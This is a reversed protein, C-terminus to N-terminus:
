HIQLWRFILDIDNNVYVDFLEPRHSLLLTFSEKYSKLDSLVNNITAANDLSYDTKFEPDNVGLLKGDEDVVGEYEAFIITAIYTAEDEKPKFWGLVISLIITVILAISVFPIGIALIIKKRRARTTTGGKVRM